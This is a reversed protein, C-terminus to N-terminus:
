WWGAVCICLMLKYKKRSNVKSGYKKVTERNKATERCNLTLAGDTKHPKLETRKLKNKITRNRFLFIFFCFCRFFARLSSQLSFSSVLLPALFFVSLRKMQKVKAHAKAVAGRGQKNKLKDNRFEPKKEIERGLPVSM